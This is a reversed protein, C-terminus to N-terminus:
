GDSRILMSAELCLGIQSLYRYEGAQFYRASCGGDEADCGFIVIVHNPMKEKAARMAAELAATPEFKAPDDEREWRISSISTVTVESM